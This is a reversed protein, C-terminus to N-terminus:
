LHDELDSKANPLRIALVTCIPASTRFLKLPLHAIPLTQRNQRCYHYIQDNNDDINILYVLMGHLFLRSDTM